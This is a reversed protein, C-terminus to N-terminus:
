TLLFRNAVLLNLILLKNLHPLRKQLNHIPGLNYPINFFAYSRTRSQRSIPTRIKHDNCIPNLINRINIFFPTHNILPISRNYFLLLTNKKRSKILLIDDCLKEATDMIHTSFMIVKGDSRLQMLIDKILQINIPDLGAFPEDLIILEPDHLITGIFQIKQQM